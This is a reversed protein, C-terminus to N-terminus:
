AAKDLLSGSQPLGEDLTGKRLADAIAVSTSSPIQIVLAGTDSDVIRVIVQNPNSTNIEAKFGTNKLTEALKSELKQGTLQTVPSSTSLESVPATTTTTVAAPAPSVPNQAPQAPLNGSLISVM